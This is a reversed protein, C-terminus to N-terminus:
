MPGPGLPAKGVQETSGSVWSGQPELDTKLMDLVGDTVSWSPSRAKRVRASEATASEPDKPASALLTDIDSKMKVFAEDEKAEIRTPGVITTSARTIDPPHETNGLGAGTTIPQGTALGLFALMACLLAPSPQM